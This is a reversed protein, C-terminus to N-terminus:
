GERARRRMEAAKAALDAFSDSETIQKVADARRTQDIEVKLRQVETTLTRERAAVKVAMLHFSAALTNMEDPFRPANETGLDLDYEGEAVRGAAVTLRRLPRVLSTSLFLVLLLLVVYSIGLIPYVQRLVDSRVQDVYTLPYDLGIAGVTKGNADLIPSYSSIWSGYPDSYAPQATTKTLGQSMLEYTAPDVVKDLPVKFTVGTQPDLLFGASAQFYLKGDKDDRAYSYAQAQDDIQMVRLLDRSSTRYLPSTPYGLGYANSADPVADVTRVLADFTAADMSKSAGASMSALNEVLRDQAATTTYQVVWVAIFAFVVTFAAAYSALLKWRMKVPFGFRRKTPAASASPAASDLASPTEVSISM